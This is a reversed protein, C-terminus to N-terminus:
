DDHRLIDALKITGSKYGRLRVDIESKRKQTLMDKKRRVM